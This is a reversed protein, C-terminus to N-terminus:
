PSAPFQAALWQRVKGDDQYPRMSEIKSDGTWLMGPWMDVPSAGLALIAKGDHGEYYNTNRCYAGPHEDAHIWNIFAPHSEIAAFPDSQGKLAVSVASPLNSGGAPATITPALWSISSSWSPSYWLSTLHAVAGPSLVASLSPTLGVEFDIPASVALRPADGFSVLAALGLVGAWLTRM